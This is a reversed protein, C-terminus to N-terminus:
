ELPLIRELYARNGELWLGHSDPETEARESFPRDAGCDMIQREGPPNHYQGCGPVRTLGLSHGIEHTITNGVLNGLTRIAREIQADRAGGPYEGGEVPQNIVPDFIEDFVPDALPNDGVRPSLQLFSEVFVGGFAGNSDANQGALNDDLRANCTDLGTTNDLGFLSQDNPDPGGIEVTSYELFDTPAQAQVVLNFGAYDRRIVEFVREKVPGSVNRLGFLRLSDTFAPLFKLHVVQRTPLVEFTLPTPDGEVVTEGYTIIPTATGTLVAPVGGLQPSQCTERNFDTPRLSFVLETGSLWTPSVEIGGPPTPLMLGQRTAFMGELRFSTLGGYEGGIFGQGFINIAQGRSAAQPAIQEIFPQLLDFGVEVPEGEIRGGGAGLNTLQLTGEFRGPEIGVWSPEFIFQIADRQWNAPDIADTAIDQLDVPQRQGGVTVFEGVLAAMTVGEDGHLFGSGRIEFPSAPYVGSATLEVTPVLGASVEADLAISAEGVADRLRATVHLQGDLQGEGAADVADADFLVQLTQDDLWSVAVPFDVGRGGVSGDIRGTYTADSFFGNGRVRVATGPVILDVEASTLEIPLEFPQPAPATGDEESCSLLAGASLCLWLISIRTM